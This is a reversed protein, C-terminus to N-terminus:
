YIYGRSYTKSWRIYTIRRFLIPEYVRRWGRCVFLIAVLKNGNIHNIYSFIELLLEELITSIPGNQRQELLFLYLLLPAICLEGKPSATLFTQRWLMDTEQCHVKPPLKRAAKPHYLRSDTM